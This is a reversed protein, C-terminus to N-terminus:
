LIILLKLYQDMTFWKYFHNKYCEGLKLIVGYSNRARMKTQLTAMNKFFNM